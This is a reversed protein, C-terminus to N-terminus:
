NMMVQCVVETVWYDKTSKNILRQRSTPSNLEDDKAYRCESVVMWSKRKEKKKKIKFSEKGGNCISSQDM